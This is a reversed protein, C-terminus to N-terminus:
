LTTGARARSFSLRGAPAARDNENLPLLLGGEPPAALSDRLHEGTEALAGRLTATIRDATQELEERRQAEVLREQATLKWGFWCLASVSVLTLLFLIRLLARPPKLWERLAHHRGAM